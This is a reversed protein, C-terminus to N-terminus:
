EGASDGGPADDGSHKLWIILAGLSGVVVYGLMTGIGYPRWCHVKKFVSILTLVILIPYFGFWEAIMYAM